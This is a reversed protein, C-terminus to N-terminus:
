LLHFVSKQFQFALFVWGWEHVHHEDMSTLVAQVQFLGLLMHSWRSSMLVIAKLHVVSLM